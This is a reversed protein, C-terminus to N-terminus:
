SLIHSLIISVTNEIQLINRDKFDIVCTNSCIQITGQFGSPNFIKKPLRPTIISRIVVIYINPYNVISNFYFQFLPHWLFYSECCIGHLKVLSVVHLYVNRCCM